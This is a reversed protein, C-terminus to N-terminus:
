ACQWGWRISEGRGPFMHVWVSKGGTRSKEWDEKATSARAPSEKAEAKGEIKQGDM